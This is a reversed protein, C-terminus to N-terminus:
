MTCYRVKEEWVLIKRISMVNYLIKGEGGVGADDDQEANYSTTVPQQRLTRPSEATLDILSLDSRYLVLAILTPQFL